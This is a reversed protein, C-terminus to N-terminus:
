CIREFIKSSTIDKDKDLEDSLFLNLIIFLGAMAFLVNKLNAKEYNWNENEDKETRNHKVLNYANWWEM